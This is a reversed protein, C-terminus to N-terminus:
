HQKTIFNTTIPFFGVKLAYELPLVFISNGTTNSKLPHGEPTEPGWIIPTRHPTTFKTAGQLPRPALPLLVVTVMTSHLHLDGQSIADHFLEIHIIIQPPPPPPPPTFESGVQPLPHHPVPMVTGWHLLPLLSSPLTPPPDGPHLPRPKALLPPHLETFISHILHQFLQLFVNCGCM